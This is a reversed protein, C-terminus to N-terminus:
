FVDSSEGRGYQPLGKDTKRAITPIDISWGIGFPGNGSGSDYNLSLTPAGRALPVAVPVTISASGNAANFKFKEGISRIAGGAKPLTLRPVNDSYTRAPKPTNANDGREAPASRHSNGSVHPEPARRDSERDQM